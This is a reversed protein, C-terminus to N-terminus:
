HHYSSTACTITFGIGMRDRGRCNNIFKIVVYWTTSIFAHVEVDLLYQGGEVLQLNYWLNCM